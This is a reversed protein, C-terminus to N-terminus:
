VFAGSRPPGRLANIITLIAAFVRRPIAVEAMQFIAYRGHCLIVGFSDTRVTGAVNYNPQYDM